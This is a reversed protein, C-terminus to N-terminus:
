GASNRIRFLGCEMKLRENDKKDSTLILIKLQDAFLIPGPAADEGPCSSLVKPELLILTLYEM